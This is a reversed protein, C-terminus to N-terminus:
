GATHKAREVYVGPGFPDPIADGEEAIGELHFSIADRMEQEVQEITDGNCCM